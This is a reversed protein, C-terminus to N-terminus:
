QIFVVPQVTESAFQVFQGTSDQRRGVVLQGMVFL